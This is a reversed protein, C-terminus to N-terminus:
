HNRSAAWHLPGTTVNRSSAWVEGTERSAEGERHTRYVEDGQFDGGM